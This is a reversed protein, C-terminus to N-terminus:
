GESSFIGKTEDWWTCILTSADANRGGILHELIPLSVILSSGGQGQLGSFTSLNQSLTLGELRFHLLRFRSRFSEPLLISSRFADVSNATNGPPLQFLSGVGVGTLTLKAAQSRVSLFTSTSYGLEQSVSFM